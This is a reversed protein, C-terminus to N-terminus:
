QSWRHVILPYQHLDWCFLFPIQPSIPPSQQLRRPWRSWLLLPLLPQLFLHPCVVAPLPISLPFSTPQEQPHRLFLSIFFCLDRHYHYGHILGGIGHSLSLFDTKCTAHFHLMFWPCCKVCFCRNNLTLFKFGCQAFDLGHILTLGGILFQKIENPWLKCM